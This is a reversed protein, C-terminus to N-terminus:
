AEWKAWIGTSLIRGGSKEKIGLEGSSIKGKPFYDLFTNLLTESSTSVAYANTLVFLPEESLLKSCNELLKPFDQNFDWPEGKPGHGYVPPDMIIADYKVGRKMERETFKLGDDIIWRVPAESMKNVDRNENAWNVAPKSADLHTVTAGADAAVLSAAGTYAFLNLLNIKRGSSKIKESIYKWQVYQEPFLGTHKFPSLKVWFSLNLAEVLWKEPINVKKTWIGKDGGTREFVADAKEWASNELSKKWIIQPDPRDLIYEGFRELRRGEGTDLLEYGEWSDTIILEM